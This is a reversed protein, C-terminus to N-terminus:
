VSKSVFKISSSKRLACRRRMILSFSYKRSSSQYLLAQQKPITKRPNPLLFDVRLASITLLGERAKQTSLYPPQIMSANWRRCSPFLSLSGSELSEDLGEWELLTEQSTFTTALVSVNLLYCEKKTIVAIWVSLICTHISTTM